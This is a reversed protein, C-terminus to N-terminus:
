YTLGVAADCVNTGTPGTIIEGKAKRFFSNSDNNKLYRAASQKPTKPTSDSAIAGAARSFGDVGDTGMSAIVAPRKLHLLASLVLEQNRGGNGKGRVTVTTEGGAVFCVGRNLLSAFRAGVERAEGEVRRFIKPAYGKARLFAAAADVANDNDALIITKANSLRKPTEKEKGSLGREIVKRAPMIEKRNWLGRKVLNQKAQKFTTPDPVTPGSAIVDLPSGLVDSLVLTVSKCPIAAALQGGKVRSLHKRVCNVERISAGSKLLAQTTEQLQKLTLGARPLELLASGGGSIVCVVLDGKEANKVLSLVAKAATVSGENPIPHGGRIFKISKANPTKVGNPVAVVGGAVPTIKALAGAMASSAKGCGIVFVRKAKFQRGDISLGGRTKKVKNKVLRAPEVAAVASALAGLAARRAREEAASEGKLLSPQNRIKM